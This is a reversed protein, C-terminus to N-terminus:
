HYNRLRRSRTANHEVGTLRTYATRVKDRTLRGEFLLPKREGSSRFVVWTNSSLKTRDTARKLQGIPTVSSTTSKASKRPRTCGTSTRTSKTKKM